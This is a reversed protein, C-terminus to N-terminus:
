ILGMASVAETPMLPQSVETSGSVAPFNALHVEILQETAVLNCQHLEIPGFTGFLSACVILESGVISLLDMKGTILWASNCLKPRRRLILGSVSGAHRSTYHQHRWFVQWIRDHDAAVALFAQAMRKARHPLSFSVDSLDHRSRSGARSKIIPPRFLSSGQRELTLWLVTAFQHFLTVFRLCRKLLQM